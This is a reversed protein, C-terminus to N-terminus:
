FFEELSEYMNSWWRYLSTYNQQIQIMLSIAKEVGAWKGNRSMWRYVTDMDPRDKLCQDGRKQHNRRVHFSTSWSRNGHRTPGHSNNALMAAHNRLYSGSLCIAAGIKQHILFFIFPKPLFLFIFHSKNSLILWSRSDSFNAGNQAHHGNRFLFKEFQFSTLISLLM